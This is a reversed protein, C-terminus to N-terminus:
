REMDELIRLSEMRAVAEWNSKVEIDKVSRRPTPIIDMSAFIAATAAVIKLKSSRTKVHLIEKEIFKRKIVEILIVIAILTVFVITIGIASAYLGFITYM